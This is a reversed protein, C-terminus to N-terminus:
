KPLYSPVHTHYSLVIPKKLLWAYLKAAFVMVGPSSCHILDPQFDRVERWIRPSLAFTLPVQLPPPPPPGHPPTAHM